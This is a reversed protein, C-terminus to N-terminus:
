ADALTNWFLLEYDQFLRAYRRAEATLRGAEIGAQVAAVAQEDAGPVPTAFFDFFGCADDDFGYHERMAGAITACYSGWAAFNATLAVLVDAPEGNLAMWALFSPYAQCGSLPEYARLQVDDMGTATALTSLRNLAEGEGAALGAFFERAGREESRAALHLFSRWDSPVIRHEEAAILGFVSRSAAGSAILSVLRNGDEQPALEEQVESLLERASGTM